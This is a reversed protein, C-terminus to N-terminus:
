NIPEPMTGSVHASTRDRMWLWDSKDLPDTIRTGWGKKEARYKWSHTESHGDAFAFGAGFNHYTGPVDYWVPREMGFGFAADNLDVANEDMLVWLMSPSPSSIQSLKGYTQWTKVRRNRGYKRNALWPGHVPLTPAGVHESGSGGADYGPCITGVAQNMSFSRASRVTKGILAPDTGQYLGFRKDTPCRFVSADNKLYPTLLSRTPDKLIDPNFEAAGGQGAKGGVWNHGPVINADDPNPPFYDSFDGGYMTLALMLQKGNNLCSVGQAKQKGKSLAPLLLAALIGIIAVVVLLEILTFAM